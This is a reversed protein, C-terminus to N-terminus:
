FGRSCMMYILVVFGFICQLALLRHGVVAQPCCDESRLLLEQLGTAGAQSCLPGEGAVSLLIIQVDLAVGRLFVLTELSVFSVPSWCLQLVSAKVFILLARTTQRWWSIFRSSSNPQQM